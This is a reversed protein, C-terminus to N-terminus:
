NSYHDPIFKLIETKQWQLAIEKINKNLIHFFVNECNEYIRDDCYVSKDDQLLQAVVVLYIVVLVVPQMVVDVIVFRFTAM